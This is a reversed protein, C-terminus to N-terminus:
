SQLCFCQRHHLLCRVCHLAQLKMIDFMRANVLCGDFWTIRICFWHDNDMFLRDLGLGRICSDWYRGWSHPYFRCICCARNAAFVFFLLRLPRVVLATTKLISNFLSSQLHKSWVFFVKYLKFLNNEPHGFILTDALVWFGQLGGHFSSFTIM